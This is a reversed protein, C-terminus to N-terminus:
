PEMSWSDVAYEFSGSYIPVPPIGGKSGLRDPGASTPVQPFVVTVMWLPSNTTSRISKAAFFSTHRPMACSLRAALLLFLSNSWTLLATVFINLSYGGFDYAYRLYCQTIRERWRIFGMNLWAPPFAIGLTPARVR